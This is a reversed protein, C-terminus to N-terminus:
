LTTEKVTELYDTLRILAREFYQFKLECGTAKRSVRHAAHLCAASGATPDLVVEGPVTMLKVLREMLALPKETPHIKQSNPVRVEVFTNQVEKEYFVPDGKRLLIFTEYCDILQKEPFRMQDTIRDPKYWMCPTRTFRKSFGTRTAFDIIPIHTAIRYWVICFRDRKLVRFLEPLLVSFLEDSYETSDDFEEWNEQVKYSAEGGWPPDFNILDVSESPITKIWEKADMCTLLKLARDRADPSKQDIEAVRARVKEHAKMRKIAGKMTEAKAVTPDSRIAQEIRLYHSISTESLKLTTATAEATWAGETQKMMLEHFQRIFKAKETYSFDKRKVNEDFEMLIRTHESLQGFFEIKILDRFLGPIVLNQEHLSKIAMLRRYGAVLDYGDGNQAVVVPQLQGHKQISSVLDDFDEGMDERIRANVKIQSTNVLM